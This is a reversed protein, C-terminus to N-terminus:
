VLEHSGRVHVFAPVGRGHGHRAPFALNFGLSFCGPADRVADCGPPACLAALDSGTSPATRRELFYMSTGGPSLRDTRRGLLPGSHGPGPPLLQAHQGVASVTTAPGM